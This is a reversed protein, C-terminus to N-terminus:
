NGWIDSGTPPTTSVGPDQMDGSAALFGAEMEMDITEVNPATYEQGNSTKTEMIM